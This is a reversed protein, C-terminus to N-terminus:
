RSKALRLVIKDQISRAGPPATNNMLLSFALVHGARNTCYGSLASVDRLTGTKAACRRADSSGRMRSGLTGDVGPVALSGLFTAYDAHSRMGSLLDVVERPAAKNRRSLGSGDALRARSGLTAAFRTAAAAGSSTSAPPRNAALGKMLMEALYNDSPKNTYAILRGVTPSSATALQAAGTPVAGVGARGDVRIGERRLANRLKAAAYRAPSESSSWPGRNFALASLSGGIEGSMRFGYAATGRRVDWLDADGLVRGTVRTIGREELVRALTEVSAGGGYYRKVVAESGFVPDGAGRLYLDGTWTGDDSQSGLGWLTTVFRGGPGYRDLAAATTFLKTNSALIRPTTARHSYVATGATVDYVYAGSARAARRMLARLTRRLAAQRATPASPRPAGTAETPAAGGPATGGSSAAGAPAALAIALPLACAGALLSRALRKPHPRTPAFKVHKM